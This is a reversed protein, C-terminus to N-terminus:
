THLFEDVYCYWAYPSTESSTQGARIVGHPSGQAPDKHIYGIDNGLQTSHPRKDQPNGKITYSLAPNPCLYFDQGREGGRVITRSFFFVNKLAHKRM